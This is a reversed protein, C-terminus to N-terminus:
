KSAYWTDACGDAGFRTTFKVRGFIGFVSTRSGASDLSRPRAALLSSVLLANFVPTSVNSFM